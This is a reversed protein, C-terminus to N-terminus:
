SGIKGGNKVGEEEYLSAASSLLLVATLYPRSPRASEAKQCWKLDSKQPRLITM